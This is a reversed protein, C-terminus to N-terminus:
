STHFTEIRTGPKCPSTRLLLLQLKTEGIRSTGVELVVLGIGLDMMCRPVSIIFALARTKATGHWLLLHRQPFEADQNAVLEWLWQRSVM